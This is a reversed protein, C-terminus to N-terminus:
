GLGWLRVEAAFGGDEFGDGAGGGDEAYCVVPFFASDFVFDHL